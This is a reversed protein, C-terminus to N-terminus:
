LEFFTTVCVGPTMLVHYFGSTSVVKCTIKACSGCCFALLLGLAECHVQHGFKRFGISCHEYVSIDDRQVAQHLVSKRWQNHENVLIKLSLMVGCIIMLWCDNILSIGVYGRLKSAQWIFSAIWEHLRGRIMLYSLLLWYGSHDM